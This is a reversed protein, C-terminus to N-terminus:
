SGEFNDAKKLVRIIEAPEFGPFRRANSPLFVFEDKERNVICVMGKDKIKHNFVDNLVEYRIDAIVYGIVSNGDLIARAFSFVMGDYRETGQQVSYPNPYHLPIFLKEGHSNIISDYWTQSRIYDYSISSSNEYFKGSSNWVMLGNLYYKNSTLTSLLSDMKRNDELLESESTYSTKKLISVVDYNRVTLLSLANNIDKLVVDFSENSSKLIDNIYSNASQEAYRTTIVMWFFNILFAFLLVLSITALLFKYKLSNINLRSKLNM